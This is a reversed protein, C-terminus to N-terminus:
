LDFLVLQPRAMKPRLEAPLAVALDLESEDVFNQPARGVRRDYESALCRIRAVRFDERMVPRGLLLFFIQLREEVVFDYRRERHGLRLATGIRFHERRMRLQLAIAP